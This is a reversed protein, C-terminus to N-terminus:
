LDIGRKGLAKKWKGEDRENFLLENDAPVWHWSGRAIEGELQGPGWGAYGFAVMAQKPGRGAGMAEIIELNSTVAYSKGVVVTGDIVFDRGHLVFGKGPEVPGGFHIPVKRQFGEGKAEGSENLLMALPAVTVTKNVILGMAGDRGHHVMLIVSEKFRPDPMSPAAVLLEGARSHFDDAPARGRDAAALLPLAAFALVLARALGRATTGSPESM